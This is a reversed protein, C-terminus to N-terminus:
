ALMALRPVAQSSELGQSIWVGLTVVGHVLNGGQGDDELPGLPNLRLLVLQNLIKM